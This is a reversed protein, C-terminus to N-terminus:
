SRAPELKALMEAVLGSLRERKLADPAQPEAFTQLASRWVGKREQSDWIGLLMTGKPHKADSTGELSPFLRFLAQARASAEGEGLVMAGVLQYRTPGQTFLFGKAELQKQIEQQIWAPVSGNDPLVSIGAPNAGKGSPAIVGAVETHWSLPTSATVPMDPSSVTVSVKQKLPDKRASSNPSNSCGALLLAPLLVSLMLSMFVRPCPLGRTFLTHM